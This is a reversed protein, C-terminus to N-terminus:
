ERWGWPIWQWADPADIRRVVEGAYAGCHFILWLTGDGNRWIPGQRVQGLFEDVYRLSELSYDLKTRDLLDGGLIEKAPPHPNTFFDAWTAIVKPGFLEDVPTTCIKPTIKM